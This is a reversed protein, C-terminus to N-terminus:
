SAAFTVVIDAEVTQQGPEIAIGAEAKGALPMPVPVSSSGEVISQVGGLTLGAAAALATAKARADAVAEKLATAYLAATDSRYLSPGSVGDAGAQVAADVVPGAKPITTKVTVTTSAVYGVVATGDPTTQPSLSIQSTQVDAAAVGADKVAQAVAAAASGNRAIAVAATAARTEVTFAFSARDPVTTVSGAGSVAITKPAAEATRGLRPQAVGALASALLLVAALLIPRRLRRM